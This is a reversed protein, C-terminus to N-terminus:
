SSVAHSFAMIFFRGSQFLILLLLGLLAILIGDGRTYPLSEAKMARRAGILFDLSELLFLLPLTFFLILLFPRMHDSLRGFWALICFIFLLYWDFYFLIGWICMKRHNEPSVRYYKEPLDKPQTRGWHFTEDSILFKQLRISQVPLYFKKTLRFPFWASFFRGCVFGLFPVGISVCFVMLIKETLNLTTGLRLLHMNQKEGKM